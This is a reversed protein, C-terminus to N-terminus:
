VWPDQLQLAHPETMQSVSYTGDAHVLFQGCMIITSLGAIVQQMRWELAQIHEENCAAKDARYRPLRNSDLLTCENGDKQSM